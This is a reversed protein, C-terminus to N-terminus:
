KIYSFNRQKNNREQLITRTLPHHQIVWTSWLFWQVMELTVRLHVGSPFFFLPELLDVQLLVTSASSWAKFRLRLQIAQLPHVRDFSPSAKHELQCRNFLFQYNYSSGEEYAYVKEVFVVFIIHKLSNIYVNKLKLPQCWWTIFKTLKIFNANSLNSLQNLNGHVKM